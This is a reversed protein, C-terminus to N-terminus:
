AIYLNLEYTGSEMGYVQFHLSKRQPKDNKFLGVTFSHSKGKSPRSRTYRGGMAVKSYWDDEDITYGKREAYDRAYQAADTFSQFYTDDHRETIVVESLLDVLKVSTNKHNRTKLFEGIGYSILWGDWKAKNAIVEGKRQLLGVYQEKPVPVMSENFEAGMFINDLQKAETHFNADILAGRTIHLVCFLFHKKDKEQGKLYKSLDRTVWSIFKKDSPDLQVTENILDKLKIM